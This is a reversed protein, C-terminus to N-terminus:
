DWGNEQGSKRTHSTAGIAAPQRLQTVDTKDPKEGSEVPPETDCSLDATEPKEGAKQDVEM